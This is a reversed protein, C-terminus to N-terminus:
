DRVAAVQEKDCRDIIYSLDSYTRCLKYQTQLVEETDFKELFLKSGSTSRELLIM